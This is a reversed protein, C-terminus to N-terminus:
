FCLPSWLFDIHYTLTYIHYGEGSIVSVTNINKKKETAGKGTLNNIKAIPRKYYWLVKPIRIPMIIYNDSTKM